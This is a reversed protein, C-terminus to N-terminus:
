ARWISPSFRVQRNLTSCVQILCCLAQPFTRIAHPSKSLWIVAWAKVLSSRSKSIPRACLWVLDEAFGEISYKQKPKDTEGHGRLEANLVRGKGAFYDMQPRFHTRDGGLGHVFLFEPQGVGAIEFSMQTGDRALKM